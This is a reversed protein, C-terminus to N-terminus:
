TRPLGISLKPQRHRCCRFLDVLLCVFLCVSLLFFINQHLSTKKVGGRNECSIWTMGCIRKRQEHQEVPLDRLEQVSTEDDVAPLVPLPNVTNSLLLLAAMTLLLSTLAQM